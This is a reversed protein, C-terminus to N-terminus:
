PQKSNNSDYLEVLRSRDCFDKFSGSWKLCTPDYFQLITSDLNPNQCSYHIYVSNITKLSHVHTFKPHEWILKRTQSVGLIKKIPIEKM